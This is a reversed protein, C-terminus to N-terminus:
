ERFGFVNEDTGAQEETAAMANGGSGITFGGTAVQHLSKGFLGSATDENCTSGGSVVGFSFLPTHVTL